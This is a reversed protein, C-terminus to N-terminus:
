FFGNNVASTLCNTKLKPSYQYLIKHLLLAFLRSFVLRTSGSFGGAQGPLPQWAESWMYTFIENHFKKTYHSMTSELSSVCAFLFAGVFLSISFSNSRQFHEPFICIICIHPIALRLNQIYYKNMGTQRFTFSFLCSVQKIRCKHKWKQIHQIEPHTKRIKQTKLITHAKDMPAVAYNSRYRTCIVSATTNRTFPTEFLIRNEYISNCHCSFDWVSFNWFRSLVSITYITMYWM